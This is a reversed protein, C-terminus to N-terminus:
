GPPSGQAADLERVLRIGWWVGYLRERISGHTFSRLYISRTGWNGGRATYRKCKGRWNTESRWDVEPASGDTPADKYTYRVCDLLM